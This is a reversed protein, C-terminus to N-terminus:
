SFEMLLIEFIIPFPIAQRASIMAFLLETPILEHHYNTITYDSYNKQYKLYELYDTLEKIEKM